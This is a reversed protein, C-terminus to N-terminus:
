PPFAHVGFRGCQFIMIQNGATRQLRAPLPHQEFLARHLRGIARLDGAQEVGPDGEVVRRLEIGVGGVHHLADDEGEAGRAVGPVDVRHHEGAGAVLREAGAAVGLFIGLVVGAVRLFVALVHPQEVVHDRRDEAAVLRDDGADVAHADAAALFDAHGAIERDGLVEGAEALGSGLVPGRRDAAGGVEQRHHDAALLRHNGGDEAFREGGVLSVPEPDDGVDDGGELDVAPEDGIRHHPGVAHEVLPAPEGVALRLGALRRRLALRQHPATLDIQAPEVFPHFLEAGLEDM